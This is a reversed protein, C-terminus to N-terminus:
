FLLKCLHMCNIFCHDVWTKGWFDQCRRKGYINTTSNLNLDKGVSFGTLMPAYVNSGNTATNTCRAGSPMADLPGGAHNAKSTDCGDFQTHLSLFLLMNAEDGWVM